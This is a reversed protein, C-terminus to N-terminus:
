EIEDAERWLPEIILGLNGMLRGDDPYIFGLANSASQLKTQIDALPITREQGLHQLLKRSGDIKKVRYSYRAWTHDQEVAHIENVAVRLEDPVEGLQLVTVMTEVDSLLEPLGHGSEARDTLGKSLFNPNPKGLKERYKQIEIGLQLPAKLLLEAAHRQLFFIPLSHHDLTEEHLSVKLLTSAAHLYAQAYNPTRFGGIRAIGVSLDAKALEPSKGWILVNSPESDKPLYLPEQLQSM